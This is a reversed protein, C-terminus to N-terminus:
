DWDYSCQSSLFGPLPRFGRWICYEGYPPPSQSSLFGPLPRFRGWFRGKNVWGCNLLYFGRFPVSVWVLWVVCSRAITNLLYFGRFPVSVFGFNLAADEIITSFISVGSPSPFKVRTLEISTLSQNLLYFGRFPVSVMFCQRREEPIISFISVGSPSPFLHVNRVAHTKLWGFQSSLFGPLPRFSKEATMVWSVFNRSNLLYFGRFPVSVAEELSYIFTFDLNLLYFGRFPVSVMICACQARWSYISFISVGSPSPFGCHVLNHFKRLIMSFISVGSPSPFECAWINNDGPNKVISFISVGSPSPFGYLWKSPAYLIISFISVGSPSPFGKRQTGYFQLVSM